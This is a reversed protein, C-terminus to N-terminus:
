VDGWIDRGVFAGRRACALAGGPAQTRGSAARSRAAAARRAGAAQAPWGAARYPACLLGAGAAPVRARHLAGRSAQTHMLVRSFTTYLKCVILCTLLATRRLLARGGAASFCPGQPAASGAGVRPAQQLLQPSAWPTAAMCKLLFHEDDSWAWQLAGLLAHLLAGRCGCCKQARFRCSRVWYRKCCREVVYAAAKCHTLDHHYCSLCFELDAVAVRCADEGTPMYVPSAVMASSPRAQLSTSQPISMNDTAPYVCLLRALTANQM